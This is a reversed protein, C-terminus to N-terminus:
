PTRRFCEEDDAYRELVVPGGVHEELFAILDDPVLSEDDDANADDTAGQMSVQVHRM